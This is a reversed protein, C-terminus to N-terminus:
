FRYEEMFRDCKGGLTTDTVSGVNLTINSTNVKSNPFSSITLAKDDKASLSFEKIKAKDINLTSIIADVDAILSMGSQEFEVTSQTTPVASGASLGWTDPDSWNGSQKVTAGNVFCVAYYLSLTVLLKKM